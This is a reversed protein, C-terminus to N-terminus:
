PGPRTEFSIWRLVADPKFANEIQLLGEMADRWEAKWQFPRAKGHRELIQSEPHFEQGRNFDFGPDTWLHTITGTVLVEDGQRRLLFDGTSTVSSAGTAKFASETDTRDTIAAKVFRVIGSVSSLNIDAKWHDQFQAVRTKPNKAIDEIALFGPTSQEPAIFNREKFREINEDVANRILDFELAEQRRVEISTGSAGLYHEFFRVALKLGRKRGAALIFQALAEVGELETGVVCALDDKMREHVKLDAGDKVGFAQNCRTKLDAALAQYLGKAVGLFVANSMVNSLRRGNHVFFKRPSFRVMLAYINGPAVTVEVDFAIGWDRTMDRIVQMLEVKREASLDKAKLGRIPGAEAMTAYSYPTATGELVALAQGQALKNLMPGSRALPQKISADRQDMRFRLLAVATEKDYKGTVNGGMYPRGGKARKTGLLAQVLAVDHVRNDGGQGVRGTLAAPRALALKPATM